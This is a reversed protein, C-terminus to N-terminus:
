VNLEGLFAAGRPRRNNAQEKPSAWRCNAPFYGLFNDIRDISHMPSPRPGMDAAFNEYSNRWRDCVKIGRGGYRRYDRRNPNECRRIMDSWISYTPRGKFWNRHCDRERQKNAARWRSINEQDCEACHSDCVKRKAIHGHKCPKGTFYHVLGKARAESRGIVDFM